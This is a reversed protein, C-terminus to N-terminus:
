SGAFGAIVGSAVAEAIQVQRNGTGDSLRYAEDPNSLFVTEVLTGPMDAQLLSGTAFQGVGGDSLSVPTEGYLSLAPWLADHMTWSFAEDKRRKGWFTQTYNVDPNTSANFHITVFIQAGCANAIEGRESNGLTTDNDSRTLATSIGQGELVAAAQQAVILNQEKAILGFYHAGPDTGGHGPDLVVDVPGSVPCQVTTNGGKGPPPGAQALEAPALMGIVAIWAAVLFVVGRIGSGFM